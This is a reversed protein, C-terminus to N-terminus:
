DALAPATPPPRRVRRHQEFRYAIGLLLSESFPRGLLSLGAPLGAQTYGVPVSVDPFGTVSAIRLYGANHQDDVRCYWDGTEAGPLPAPPCALTPFLLADLRNDDLLARLAARAAPYRYLVTYLYDTDALGPHAEDTRLAQLLTPNMAQAPRADGWVEAADAVDDLDGPEDSDIERLYAEFLPRFEAGIVQPLYKGAERVAQPLSVEVVGAGLSRLDAAAQEIAADVDAHGGM